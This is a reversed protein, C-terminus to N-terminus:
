GIKVDPSALWIEFHIDNVMTESDEPPNVTNINLAENLQKQLLNTKFVKKSTCNDIEQRNRNSDFHTEDEVMTDSDQPLGLTENSEDNAYNKDSQM